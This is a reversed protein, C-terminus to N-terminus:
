LNHRYFVKGIIKWQTNVKLLTLYDTFIHKEDRYLMIKATSANQTIDLVQIKHTWKEKPPNEARKSIREMFESLTVKNIKDDKVSAFFFDEHFGKKMLEVNYDKFVPMIYYKEIDAIINKKDSTDLPVFALCIFLWSILFFFLKKM